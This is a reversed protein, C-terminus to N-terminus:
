FLETQDSYFLYIELLSAHLKDMTPNATIFDTLSYAM